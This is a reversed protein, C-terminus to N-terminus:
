VLEPQSHHDVEKNFEQDTYWKINQILPNNSLITHLAQAAEIKIHRQGAGFFFSFLNVGSIRELTCIWVGPRVPRYQTILCYKISDVEFQIYWGFDEQGLEEEVKYGASKLQAQLWRCVDDGYCDPNIYDVQPLTTNFGQSEFTVQRTLQMNNPVIVTPITPKLTM